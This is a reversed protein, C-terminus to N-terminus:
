LDSFFGGSVRPAGASAPGGPCDWGDWTWGTLCRAPAIRVRVPVRGDLVEQALGTGRMSSYNRACGPPPRWGWVRGVVGGGRLIGRAFGGFHRVAVGGRMGGGGGGARRREARGSGWGRRMGCRGSAACGLCGIGAQGTRASSATTWSTSSVAGAAGGVSRPTRTRTPHPGHRTLIPPNGGNSEGCSVSRCRSCGIITRCLRLEVGAVAGIVGCCRRRGTRRGRPRRPAPQQLRRVTETSVALGGNLRRGPAGVACCRRGLGPTV